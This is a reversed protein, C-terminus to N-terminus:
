VETDEALLAPTRDTMHWDSELYETWVRDYTQITQRAITHWNFTTQVREYAAEVMRAATDPEHLLKLLGDALSDPNGAYTTIGTVNNEVVEPLGGGDSVVVPVHAAM